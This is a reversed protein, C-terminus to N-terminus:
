PLQDTSHSTRRPRPRRSEVRAALVTDCRGRSGVGDFHLRVQYLRGGWALRVHSDKVEFEHLTVRAPRPTTKLIVSREADVDLVIDGNILRPPCATMFRQEYRNENPSFHFDDQIRIAGASRVLMCDRRWRILGAAPPYAALKGGLLEALVM